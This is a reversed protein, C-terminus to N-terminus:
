HTRSLSLSLTHTHTNTHGGGKTAGVVQECDVTDGITEGFSKLSSKLLQTKQWAISIDETTLGEGLMAVVKRYVYTISGDVALEVVLVDLHQNPFSHKTQPQFKM